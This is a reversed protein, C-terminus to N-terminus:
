RHLVAGSTEAPHRPVPKRAHEVSLRRSHLVGQLRRVADSVPGHEERHAMQVTPNLTARKAFLTANVINIRYDPNRGGVMLVFASKSRVLRIKVDVGNILFKDQLFLDVYLRDMMYVVQSRVINARRAVFGENAAAGDVIEVADM